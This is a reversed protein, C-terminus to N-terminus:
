ADALSGVLMFFGQASAKYEGVALAQSDSLVTRVALKTCLTCLAETSLMPCDLASSYVTSCGWPQLHAQLCVGEAAHAPLGTPGPTHLLEAELEATGGTPDEIAPAIHM